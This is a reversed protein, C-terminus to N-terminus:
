WLQCVNSLTQTALAMFPTLTLVGLPPLVMYKKSVPKQVGYTVFDCGYPHPAGKAGVVYQVNFVPVGGGDILGVGDGLGVGEGLGV